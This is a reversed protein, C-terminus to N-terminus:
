YCTNKEGECGLDCSNESVPWTVHIWEYYKKEKCAEYFLVEGEIGILVCTKKGWM